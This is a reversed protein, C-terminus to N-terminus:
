SVKSIYAENAPFHQEPHISSPVGLSRRLRHSDDYRTRAANMTM